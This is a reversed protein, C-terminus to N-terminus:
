KVLLHPTYTLTTSLSLAYPQTPASGLSPAGGRLLQRCAVSSADLISRLFFRKKKLHPPVDEWPPFTLATGPPEYLGLQRGLRALMTKLAQGAKDSRHLLRLVM